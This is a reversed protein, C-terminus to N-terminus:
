GDGGMVIRHVSVVRDSPFELIEAPNFQELRLRKADKSVFRKVFALPTEGEEAAIQAVVFDGKRVPLGPNVYAAEGAYYRPEMSDGAVYVAYAGKVGRLSPPALIDAIRNGNLVFEGHEGGIAQGYVPIVDRGDFDFREGLRANPRPTSREGYRLETEAIDVAAASESLMQGRPNGVKGQVYKYLRDILAQDDPHGMKRALDPVGWGLEGLRENLRDNWSMGPDYNTSNKETHFEDPKNGSNVELLNLPMGPGSRVIGSIMLRAPPGGAISRSLPPQM